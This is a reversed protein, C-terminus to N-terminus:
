EIKDRPCEGVYLKSQTNLQKLAGASTGEIVETGDIELYGIREYRFNELPCTVEHLSM